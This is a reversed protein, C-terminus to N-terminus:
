YSAVYNSGCKRVFLRAIAVSSPTLHPSLRLLSGRPPMSCFRPLTPNPGSGVGGKQLFSCELLFFIPLVGGGIM